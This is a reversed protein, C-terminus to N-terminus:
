GGGGRAQCGTCEGGLENTAARPMPMIGAQLCQGMQRMEGRMKEMEEKMEEKIQKANEKLNAEMKNEMRNTNTEMQALVAFLRALDPASPHVSEALIPPPTQHLLPPSTDYVAATAAAVGMEPEPNTQPLEQEEVVLMEQEPDGDQVMSELLGEDGPEREGQSAM